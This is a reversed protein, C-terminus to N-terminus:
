IVLLPTGTTAGNELASQAASADSLAFQPGEPRRLGASLAAMAETVVGEYRAPAALYAMVSPMHFALSRQPGLDKSSLSALEGGAQGVSAFTGFKATAELSARFTPEGIGDITLDVGEGETWKRVEGAIDANRGIIVADAGNELALEAKAHTSVTAIIRAGLRKAWPMVISALGGAGAHILITTGPTVHHVTHLLMHATCARLLSSAALENSVDRPLNIARWAPLLRVEAYGGVAGAYAVRDGATFQAVGDGVAEVVGAGEVGLVAPMPLPYIGRRQYIDIFNLGAGTQRLRIEGPGPNGIDRSILSLNQVGGPASLEVVHPM